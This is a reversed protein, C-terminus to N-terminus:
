ADPFFHVEPRGTYVNRSIISDIGFYKKIMEANLLDATGTEAIRGNDMVLLRDATQAVFNIDNSCIVVIRDGNTVFRTLAKKLLKMSVLDLDNTPNDLFVAATDRILIHAILARKFIGDPLTFLQESGYSNLGLLSLYDDAVQRDYDAFPRLFKKYPARALLLFDYLTEDLNHPVAGGYYSADRKRLQRGASRVTGGVSIGGSRNAIQGAMTKLLMTKGSGTQGIIGIIEGDNLEVSIDRLIPRHNISLTLDSIEIM